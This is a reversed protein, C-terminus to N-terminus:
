DVYVCVLTLTLSVYWGCWEVFVCGCRGVPEGLDIVRALDAALVVLSPADDRLSYTAVRYAHRLTPIQRYFLEGTGNLGPVLVLPNGNGEISVRPDYGDIMSM